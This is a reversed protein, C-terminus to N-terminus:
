KNEKNQKIRAITKQIITVQYQENSLIKTNTTDITSIVIADSHGDVQQVSKSPEKAKQQIARRKEFARTLGQHFYDLSSIM